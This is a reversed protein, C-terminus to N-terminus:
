MLHTLSRKTQEPKQICNLGVSLMEHSVQSNSHYDVLPPAIHHLVQHAEYLLLRVLGTVWDSVEELTKEGVVIKIPCLLCQLLTFLYTLYRYIVPQRTRHSSINCQMHMHEAFGALATGLHTASHTRM